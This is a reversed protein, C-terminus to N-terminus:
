KREPVDSGDSEPTRALIEAIEASDAVEATKAMLAYDSLLRSRKLGQAGDRDVGGPLVELLVIFAGELGALEGVEHDERLRRELLGLADLSVRPEVRILGLEKCPEEIFEGTRGIAFAAQEIM